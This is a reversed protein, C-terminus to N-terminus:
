SAAQRQRIRTGVRLWQEAPYSEQCDTCTIRAHTSEDSSDYDATPFYAWLRGTCGINVCDAVEVRSRNAPRDIIRWAEAVAYTITDYIDDASPHQRIQDISGILWASITLLNNAPYFSQRIGHCSGHTCAPCTPGAIELRDGYLDAMWPLLTRRLNWEVESAAWNFPLPREDDKAHPMGQQAGMVAQRTVTLSLQEALTTVHRLSRVLEAECGRCLVAGNVPKGDVACKTM